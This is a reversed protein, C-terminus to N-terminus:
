RADIMEVDLRMGGKPRLTVRSLPEPAFSPDCSFRASRVLEALLVVAEFIAFSMGICTRPGFGFPMFQTRAYHAEREEGFRTPDFADPERWLKRHRHIVYIPIVLMAGSKLRHPGLTVDNAAMRGMVPAPPYLRLAEKIVARTTELRDVHAGEIGGRGCVRAVEERVLEQWKPARALLYLTWTLAKATTEHGAAAFTLLNHAILEDGMPAGTEPDRAHGLKAMLGRGPWGKSKERAVIARMTENLAIASRRMARRAPHWVGPPLRLIECAIDWSSRELYAGIETKLVQAESETAGEFITSQLVDFTLDTMAAAINRRLIRGEARWRAMLRAGAAAMEPVQGILEGHRFIPAVTRRQWRWNAGEATLIADGIIPEFIRREVRSKPFIQHDDLLIREVLAPETVWALRGGLMGPVVIPEHYVPEPIAKLPNVIFTPVFRWLPLPAPPPRVTPPVFETTMARIPGEAM